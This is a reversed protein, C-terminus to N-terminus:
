AKVPDGRNATKDPNDLMTIFDFKNEYQSVIERTKDNSMGDVVFIELNLKDYDCDLVSDLCTSIYEEENLCPIIISVKDM